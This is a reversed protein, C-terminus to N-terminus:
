LKIIGMMNVHRPPVWYYVAVENTKAITSFNVLFAGVAVKGLGYSPYTSGLGLDIKEVSVEDDHDYKVKILAVVNRKDGSLSEKTQEVVVCCLWERSRSSIHPIWV